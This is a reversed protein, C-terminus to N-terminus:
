KRKGERQLACYANALAQSAAKAEGRVPTGWGIKRGSPISVGATASETGMTAEWMLRKEALLSAMADLSGTFDPIGEKGSPAIWRSDCSLDYVANKGKSKRGEVFKFGAARAVDENSVNKM